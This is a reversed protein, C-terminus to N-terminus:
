DLEGHTTVTGADTLKSESGVEGWGQYFVQKTVFYKKM